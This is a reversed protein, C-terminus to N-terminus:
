GELVGNELVGDAEVCMSIVMVGLVGDCVHLIVQLEMCQQKSVELEKKLDKLIAEDKIKSVRLSDKETKM